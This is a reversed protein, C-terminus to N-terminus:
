ASTAMTLHEVIKILGGVTGFNVNKLNSDSFTISFENELYSIMEIFEISSFFHHDLYNFALIDIKSLIDNQDKKLFYDKIKAEINM